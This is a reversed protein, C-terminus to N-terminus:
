ESLTISSIKIFSRYGLPGALPHMKILFNSTLLCILQITFMVTNLLNLLM